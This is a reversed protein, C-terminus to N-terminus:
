KLRENLVQQESKKIFRKRPKKQRFRSEATKRTEKKIKKVDEPDVEGERALDQDDEVLGPVRGPAQHHTDDKEVDPSDVTV